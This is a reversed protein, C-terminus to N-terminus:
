ITPVGILLLHLYRAFLAWLLAGLVISATTSWARSPAFMRGALRDRRRLRLLLMVAWLLFAGFLLLDHAFGNALLHAVAWLVVAALMPHGIWRRLHNAPMYAAVLLVFSPLMLVGALHRMGIPPTWVPVPAQRAMGYGAVILVFGALSIVSYVAKWPLAGFHARQADRWDPAFLSLSHPLLFLVLGALLILM